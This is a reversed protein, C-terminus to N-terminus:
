VLQGSIRGYDRGGKLIWAVSLFPLIASASLQNTSASSSHRTLRLM